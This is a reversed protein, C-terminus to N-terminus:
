DLEALVEVALHALQRAQRLRKALAPERLGPEKYEAPLIRARVMFAPRTDRTGAPWEPREISFHDDGLARVCYDPLGRSHNISVRTAIPNSPNATVIVSRVPPVADRPLDSSVFRRDVAYRDRMILMASAPHRVPFGPVAVGFVRRETEHARRTFLAGVFRMAGQAGNAEWIQAALVPEPGANYWRVMRDKQQHPDLRHDGSDSVSRALDPLPQMCAAFVDRTDGTVMSESADIYFGFGTNLKLAEVDDYEEFPDYRLHEQASM